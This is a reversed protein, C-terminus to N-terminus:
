KCCMSAIRSAPHVKVYTYTARLSGLTRVMTEDVGLAETYANIASYFDGKAYFEDGKSSLWVPDADGIDIDNLLVNQKLNSRNKMIFEQEQKITSQRAPTKFLRPTHKFTNHVVKRPPPLDPESEVESDETCDQPADHNTGVDTTPNEKAAVQETEREFHVKTSKITKSNSKESKLKAFTEHLAEEAGKKENAKVNDLRQREKEELEMHKQFVMREEDVKTQAARETQRQVKEDRQKLALQRRQKTEENSGEFCLQGWLEGENKKALRIELTGKKLVARSDDEDIEKHLNLDLLFPSYNVKLLTSATFVDVKKM